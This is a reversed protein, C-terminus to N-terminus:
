LVGGFGGPGAQSGIRGGVNFGDHFNEHSVAQAGPFPPICGGGCDGTNTAMTLSTWGGEAGIYFGGPGCPEGRTPIASCVAIVAVAALVGFKWGQALVARRKLTRQVRCNVLSFILDWM